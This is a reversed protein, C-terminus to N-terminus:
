EERGHEMLRARLLAAERAGAELAFVYAHTLYFCAADLDNAEDAAQTYLQILGAQDHRDHAAIMAADLASM